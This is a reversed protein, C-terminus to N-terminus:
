GTTESAAVPLAKLSRNRAPRLLGIATAGVWMLALLTPNILVVIRWCLDIWPEFGEPWLSVIIRGVGAAPGTWLINMALLASAGALFMRGTRPLRKWSPHSATFIAVIPLTLLILDYVLHYISVVSGLCILFTAYSDPMRNEANQTERWVLWGTILVICTPVAYTAWSTSPLALAKCLLAAIDVRVISLSPDATPDALTAAQNFAALRPISLVDIGLAAMLGLGMIMGVLAGATGYILARYDGRCLMFFALCVFYTPKFSAIMLAVGSLGPRERATALALYNALVLPWTVQGYNLNSRAPESAMVLAALTCVSTVGISWGCWRVIFGCSILLIVFNVAQWVGGAMHYPLFALPLNLLLILPSYLPFNSGVQGEFYQRYANVDYPNVRALVARCPFYVVDRFDAMGWHPGGIQDVGGYLILLSYNLGTILALAIVSLIARGYFYMSTSPAPM